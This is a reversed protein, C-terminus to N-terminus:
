PRKERGRYESPPVGCARRFVKAFYNGGSYGTRAAVEKVSLEGSRLLEKARDMRTVTLADSISVGFQRSFSRSLHYPSVDFLRAMEELGVPEAFHEDIYRRARAALAARNRRAARSAADGRAAPARRSLRGLALAVELLMLSVREPSAGSRDLYEREFETMLHHLLEKSAAPMALLRAPDMGGVLREGSDWHFFVYFARYPGNGLRVDRHETGRPIVFTDKPGVTFSRRRYQIRAAGQQVHILEHSATTHFNDRYRDGVTVAEFTVIEPLGALANRVQEVEVPVRTAPDVRPGTVYKRRTM